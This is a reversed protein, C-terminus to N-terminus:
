SCGALSLRSGHINGFGKERKMKGKICYTFADLLFLTNAVNHHKGTYVVLWLRARLPFGERLACHANRTISKRPDPTALRGM